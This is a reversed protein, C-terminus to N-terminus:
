SIFIVQEHEKALKFVTQKYEAEVKERKTLRCRHINLVCIFIYIM